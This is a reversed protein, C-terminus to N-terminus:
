QWATLDVALYSVAPSNLLTYRDIGYPAAAPDAAGEEVLSANYEGVKM